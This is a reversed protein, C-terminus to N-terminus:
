RITAVPVPLERLITHDTSTPNPALLASWVTKLPIGLAGVALSAVIAAALVLLASQLGM